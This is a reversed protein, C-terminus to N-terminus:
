PRNVAHAGYPPLLNAVIPTVVPTAAGVFETITNNGSNTVWLNGVGDIALDHSGNVVGGTFGSAPSRAVGSSNFESIGSSTLNAVWINGAADIALRKPFNLGGGTFGNVPSLAVGSSNFESISGGLNGVWIEGAGDVAISQPNSLGGGTFGSSGNIALGSSSFESISDNGTNAVWVHGILDVALDYPENLSGGTFGSAPSLAGGISNFESISANNFNAVWIKGSADVALGLAGNLGGGIFGGAPSVAAGSPSFKSISSNNTVWINGSADVALFAPSAVGGGTFGSAPSLAAGTSSFESISSDGNNTVWINGSADVALGYPGNLGGGTFTLAVTFDNPAVSMSPQFPSGPTQLGFLTSVNASPHHAINVAATATDSPSVGGAQANNFLTTCQTSGPGTSNVCAALINALTDIEAQPVTGNGGSTTSNALGTSQNLLNQYAGDASNNLNSIALTTGSTGVHTADTIFGAFAYVAAVTSVENITTFSTPSCGGFGAVLSIASNPGSGPNGGTAYYYANKGTPCTYDGTITFNGSSDTTVYWNGSGDQGSGTTLLSTSANSSSPPVGPGGYGTTSLTLLYVHAGVIPQQGGHVMGRLTVAQTPGSGPNTSTMSQKGSCGSLVLFGSTSLLFLVKSLRVPFVGKM